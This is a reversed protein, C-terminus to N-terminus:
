RANVLLTNITEKINEEDPNLKPAKIETSVKESLETKDNEKKCSTIFASIAIFLITPYRLKKNM